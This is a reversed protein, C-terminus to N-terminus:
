ASEYKKLKAQLSKNARILEATREQYSDRSAVLAKNEIELLRIQERLDKVTDEIDMKEIDPADWQGIAIVDKLQANEESLSHIVDSLESVRDNLM